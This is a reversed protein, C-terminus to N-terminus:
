SMRQGITSSDFDEREKCVAKRRWGNLVGCKQERMEEGPFVLNYFDMQSQWFVSPLFDQLVIICLYESTSWSGKQGASCPSLVQLTLKVSSFVIGWEVPM